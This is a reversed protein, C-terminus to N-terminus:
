PLFFTTLLEQRSPLSTNLLVTPPHTPHHVLTRKTQEKTIRKSNPQQHHPPNCAVSTQKSALAVWTQDYGLRATSIPKKNRGDFFGNKLTTNRQLGKAAANPETRKFGAGEYRYIYTITIIIHEIHKSKLYGYGHSSRGYPLKRKDIAISIHTITRQGSYGWM